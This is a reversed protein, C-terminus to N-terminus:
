AIAKDHIEIFSQGRVKTIWTQLAEEFKKQFLLEAVEERDPKQAPAANSSRTDVLHVIHFGNSTQLPGTFDNSKM